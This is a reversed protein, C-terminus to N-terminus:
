IERIHFRMTLEEGRLNLDNGDQDTLSTELTFITDSTLPLYVLNQPTEIIKYGPSVDPFFSYIVPKQLGNVHSGSICDINVLISSINIINVINESEHYKNTYIAKNFGLLDSLSHAPTFDVQYGNKLKLITKLTNTNPALIINYSDRVNDYHDRNKMENQIFNNIDTLEYAGEPIQIEFWNTGDPSYKFINNNGNINPFSYYTELNVLAIEYSKKKDLQLPPNFRTKFRSKTDKVIIQHSRKLSTNEVIKHLLDEM